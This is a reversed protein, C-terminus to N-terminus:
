QSRAPGSLGGGITQVLNSFATSLMGGGGGEAMAARIQQAISASAASPAAALSVGATLLVLVRTMTTM